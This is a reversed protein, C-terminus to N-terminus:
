FKVNMSAQFTRPQGLFGQLYGNDADYRLYSSYVKDFLNKIRFNFTTNPNPQWKLGVNVLAYAPRVITNAFDEYSQGVFQLGASAEWNERFAWSLWLNATAQPVLIPVKNTYDVVSFSVFDIYRFDDYRAKLVAANADIRWGGDLTLSVAAEIGRSSQQGIQQLSFDAPNVVLLNNKIIQFAALTWQGRGGWFSQKVGVEIQRGRTLDFNQFSKTYDLLPVNIPDSAVAYQGYIAFDPVPNYVAGVRWGVSSFTREFSGSPTSLDQRNITPRDLRVGSVLTLNDRLSLRNEAFLSQQSITSRFKPDLRNPDPFTGPNFVYPNVASTYPLFPLAGAPFYNSYGFNARNVDFGIVTENRLGFLQHRLTLDARNGVQNQQQLIHNYNSREVQNTGTNWFFTEANRWERRSTLYYLVNRFSLADSPTWETKFQSWSDEFRILSDSVNYNRRRISTDLVGDRYPTGFYRMPNQNGYDTSITFALNPTAQLRLAGSAAFNSSNGRDVWGNSADTVINFRYSLAQSIPGGSDLAIRRTLNSDFFLEAENRFGTTIPKKPVVNIVGGIAGEGYLVSAPGRLVEIREVSWTDFPFTVNGRGPFLRTGDYLQMVSSNGQFGRVAFGSGYVPAAVSSFGTGNQTVAETISLQGRERATEGRIIEVSAPTQLPTLGLRSATSAPTSLNLGGGQDATVEITPLPLGPTSQTAPQALALGPLATALAIVSFSLARPPRSHSPLQNM